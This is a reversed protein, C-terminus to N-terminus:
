EPGRGQRRITLERGGCQVRVADAPFPATAWPSDYRAYGHLPVERGAVLLPGRPGFEIRGLEPDEFSVRLGEIRLEAGEIASRFREFSGDVAERGMRCLWAAQKGDAIVENPQGPRGDDRAWRWPPPPRLALYGKGRRSFIWGSSEAVEDFESRPFWAHTFLLENKRYLGPKTDIDYLAILVNRHAAARPLCGSGTWYGPSKNRRGGPQTTFCVAAPGLSAQWISQQDGGRRFCWDQACSLMYDPTKFSYIDAEERENRGIDRAFARAVTPMLGLKRLFWILRRYPRFPSLYENDWWRHEDFLRFTLDITRPHNYAELSLFVMGDESSEFGLGWRAAEDVRIGMRQRIEAAEPRAAAISVIAEPVRYTDSLALCVSSMNDKGANCGLGFALKMTDSMAEVHADKKHEEYSRGHSTAFAGKFCGQAMDLFVLDAVARASYAIEHEAFDALALLATLDEDYYVNSLWESFGSRFRLDLWRIVRPRALAAQQAGTLCSNAFVADPRSSGLVLAASAYLIQHNETWTCLSDAGPEDPWYKFGLLVKEARELLDRPANRSLNPQLILRLYCHALFDSCDLRSEIYDLGAHLIGEHPPLGAAIRPLEYFPAKLIPPAPSSLCRELFASRREEFGRAADGHASRAPLEEVFFDEDAAAPYGLPPAGRVILSFDRLDYGTSVAEEAGGAGEAGAATKEREIAGAIKEREIASLFLAALGYTLDHARPVLSYGLRPFLPLPITPASIEGMTPPSGPSGLSDVLSDYARLAAAEFREGLWGERRSRMWGFAILATASAERYSRDGPELLTRWWGDRGQLPFLAEALSRIEDLIGKSEPRDPGITGLILPLSAAVWGNGRGWFISERPYPGPPDARWSHRYLGTAPDRLLSAYLASQRAAFALLDADGTDAAYRAAFVGFMMLSDVWVSKPYLRGEPSHGLHNVAEGVLRPERRIYDVVRETLERCGSDGTRRHVAWTALAPACADSQDIRPPSAAWRACYSACFPLYRDEGTFADLETLSWVLLAQGWTWRLGSPDTRAVVRDALEIVRAFAERSSM